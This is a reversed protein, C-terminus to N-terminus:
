SRRLRVFRIRSGTERFDADSGDVEFGMVACLRVATKPHERAYRALADAGADPDLFIATVAVQERGSEVRAHPDAKLNRYWDTRAGHGVAVVFGDSTDVHNVVELVVYRSQGSKRGRHELLLFRHGLLFGLHWRYLLIPLRMLRRRVGTPPAAPETVRM